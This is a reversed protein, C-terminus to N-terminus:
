SVMHREDSSGAAPELSTPLHEHGGRNGPLITELVAIAPNRCWQGDVISSGPYTPAPPDM